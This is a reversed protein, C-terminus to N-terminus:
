LVIPLTFLIGFLGLVRPSLNRGLSWLGLDVWGRELLGRVTPWRCLPSNFDGCVLVPGVLGLCFTSPSSLVANNVEFNFSGPPANPFLADGCTHSVTGRSPM